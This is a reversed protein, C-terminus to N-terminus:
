CQMVPQLVKHLIENIRTAQELVMMHSGNEVTHTPHTYRIPLIEDRTGHIHCIPEPVEDNEWGLIAEMSWRILRPDSERIVQALLKKNDPSEKTFFRKVIAGSKLVSIPVLQHLRMKKAMRYYGPLQSSVPISSILITLAPKFKKAIETGLMGGFSLGLLIFPHNKDIREALRLAYSRLSEHPVPDIWDLYVPEYGEPLRIHRFVRADAAMGSIFYAKM